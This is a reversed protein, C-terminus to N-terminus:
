NAELLEEKVIGTVQYANYLAKQTEYDSYDNVKTQTFVDVDRTKVEPTSLTQGGNEVVVNEKKSIQVQQLYMLPM